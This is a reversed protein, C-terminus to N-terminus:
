SLMNYITFRNATELLQPTPPAASTGEGDPLDPIHPLPRSQRLAETVIVIKIDSCSIEYFPVLVM